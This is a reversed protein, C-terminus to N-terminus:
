LLMQTQQQALAELMQSHVIGWLRPTLQPSAALAVNAEVHEKAQVPVVALSLVHADTVV